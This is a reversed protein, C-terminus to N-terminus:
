EKDEEKILRELYDLAKLLDPLGGKGPAQINFRGIYKIINGYLYGVYQEHTMWKEAVNIPEIKMAAYHAKHATSKAHIPKEELM